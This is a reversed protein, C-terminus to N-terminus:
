RARRPLLVKLSEREPDFVAVPRRRSAPLADGASLVSWGDDEDPRWGLPRAAGGMAHGAPSVSALVVAPVGARAAAALAARAPRSTLTAHGWVALGVRRTRAARVAEAPTELTKLPGVRRALWARARPLLRAYRVECSALAALTELTTEREPACGLGCVVLLGPMGRMM